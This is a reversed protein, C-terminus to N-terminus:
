SCSSMHSTLCSPMVQELIAANKPDLPCLPLRCDGAPLGSLKLAAKIPIPNTEISAARIFPMLHYHRQRAAEFDGSAMSQVMQKIERPLLNSVVSFVGDAGLALLPFTLNDDGSMVKFDPREQKAIEIVESIQSINGSSEKIGVISPIEMLRKLTENQLNTSTRGPNNYIVIPLSCAESIAKFHRYLGEQSPKNYYPTIILAGDAGCEQAKLTNEITQSTAYSGTGVFLNAKKPDIEERTISMVRKKENENLTPAEGTTGLIVIGEIGYQLQRKILFRLGEEDLEEQPGFPTILVTYVGQIPIM